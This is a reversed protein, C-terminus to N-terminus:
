VRIASTPGIDQPLPLICVFEVVLNLDAIIKASASNTTGGFESFGCDTDRAIFLLNKQSPHSMSKEVAALLPTWKKEEDSEGESGDDFWAWWTEIVDSSDSDPKEWRLRDCIEDSTETSHLGSRSSKLTAATESIEGPQGISAKLLEFVRPEKYGLAELETKKEALSPATPALVDHSRVFIGIPAAIVVALGFSGIRLAKAVSFHRDNLGLLVALAAGVAGVFIAVTSKGDGAPAALGLMLGVMLGIGVGAFVSAALSTHTPEAGREYATETM